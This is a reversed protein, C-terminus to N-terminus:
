WDNEEYFHKWVEFTGQKIHDIESKNLRNKWSQINSKSDRNLETSTKSTTTKLLYQQVNQDFPVNLFKFIHEFEKIPSKSLDEHKVFYWKDSYSKQYHLVVHYLITWLLIGQDVISHKNNAYLAIPERYPKLLSNMLEPQNLFNNFDFEWEKVKISAIFAAPHRILIVVDLNFSQYLWEASLLAIPDKLLSRKTAKRNFELLQTYTNKLLSKDNDKTFIKFAFPDLFGNIYTRIKDQYVKNQNRHIYEFWYKLPAKYKKIAINFPEQVYRVQESKSIVKGTWTSGSRHAGTILIGKKM